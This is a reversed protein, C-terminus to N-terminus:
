GFPFDVHKGGNTMAYVGYNSFKVVPQGGGDIDDLLVFISDPCINGHLGLRPHSHIYALADLCQRIVSKIWASFDLTKDLANKKMLKIVSPLSHAKDYSEALIFLRDLSSTIIISLHSRSEKKSQKGRVIDLYSCLNQHKVQDGLMVLKSDAGTNGGGGGGGYSNPYVLFSMFNGYIEAYPLFSAPVAPGSVNNSNNSTASIISIPSQKSPSLIRIGISDKRMM